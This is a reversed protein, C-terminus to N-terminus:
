KWQIPGVAIPIARVIERFAELKSAPEKWVFQKLLDPVLGKKSGDVFVLTVISFRDGKERKQRIAYDVETALYAEDRFAPTVFFVAACSDKFGQLLARELNSGASMDDEDLWPDFGLEELTDKFERVMPKDAGKHSLFVRMPCLGMEMEHQLLVATLDQQIDDMQDFIFLADSRSLRFHRSIRERVGAKNDDTIQSDGIIASSIDGIGQTSKMVPNGTHEFVIINWGNFIGHKINHGTLIPWGSVGTPHKSSVLSTYSDIIQDYVSKENEM